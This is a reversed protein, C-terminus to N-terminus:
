AGADDCKGSTMWYSGVEEEDHERGNERGNENIGRDGLRRGSTSKILRL